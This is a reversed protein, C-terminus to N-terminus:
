EVKLLQVQLGKTQTNWLLYINEGNKLLQPYDTKEEEAAALLVKPETWNKGDDGSFRGFIQSTKGDLERWVLWVKEGQSILAPHSAQKQHNGFKKAPFFAWAEGDVRTYYLGPKAEQGDFYALHFGWWNKGEGGAALTGGHHPCGDVQWHGYSARKLVPVQGATKPIEAMMHDRESGEFVYRFLAVVTNDPKTALAIRCCECSADSLKQEPQFTNGGDTSVAFYIAAGTYKKGASKAAELDRKDVWLVTIKGDAAVNLADFRHTIEARDQHVIKTEFTKGGDSSRAFWIYGTFPKKLMQTWTLYLNGQADIALKPRAEGDAGIKQAQGHVKVPTSFTKGMDTSKDMWVFGDAAFARWLAGHADFAASVALAGSGQHAAHGEHAFAGCSLFLLWLWILVRM